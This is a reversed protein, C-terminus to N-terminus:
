EALRGMRPTGQDPGSMAYGGDVPLDIGTIHRADDSCLFLVARAVEEADGVRGLPHYEGAIRDAKVRDDKTLRAITTSWTWGPSVTNVRIKDAALEMAENRTLQLIAAKSAPYLARGRQGQKGAISSFNVIAGGGRSRMHPAVAAVLLAGSVVNINLATLWEARSSALGKDFMTCANNILIDIGGFIAAATAVCSAIHADDTIDTHHFGVTKGLERALATGSEDDIDAILARTGAAHFARVIAAGISTAGGTVIAVKGGLGRM